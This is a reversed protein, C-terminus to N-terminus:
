DVESEDAMYEVVLETKAVLVALVEFCRGASFMSAGPIDLAFLERRIDEDDLDPNWDYLLGGYQKEFKGRNITRFANVMGPPIRIDYLETDGWLTTSTNM